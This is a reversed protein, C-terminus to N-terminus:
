RVSSYLITSWSKLVTMPQQLVLTTCLSFAAAISRGGDSPSCGSTRCFVIASVMIIHILQHQLSFAIAAPSDSSTIQVREAHLKTYSHEIKM